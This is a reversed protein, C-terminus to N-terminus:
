FQAWHFMCSTVLRTEEPGFTIKQVNIASGFCFRHSPQYRSCLSSCHQITTIKGSPSPVNKCRIYVVAFVPVISLSRVVGKMPWSLGQFGAAQSLLGGSRGQLLCIYLVWGLLGWCLMEGTPSAHCIGHMLIVLKQLMWVICSFLREVLDRMEHRDAATRSKCATNRSEGLLVNCCGCSPLLQAWTAPLPNWPTCLGVVM